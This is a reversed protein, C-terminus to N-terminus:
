ATTTAPRALGRLERAVRELVPEWQGIAPQRFLRASPYWPSDDRGLLWRWDPSYPLLLWVPKGMAGAVHAVATDVTIVVDMLAVLAATDRFDALEDGFHLSRRIHACPPSM